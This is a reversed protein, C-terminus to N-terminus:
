VLPLDDDMIDDDLINDCIVRFGLFCTQNPFVPIQCFPLSICTLDVTFGEGGSFESLSSPLSLEKVNTLNTCWKICAVMLYVHVSFHESEFQMTKAVFLV